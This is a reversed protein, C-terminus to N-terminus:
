PRELRKKMAAEIEAAVGPFSSQLHRFDDAFLVLVRAASTTTVTATRRGHGLLAIEGFFDGPGLSAVEEGGASVSARGQRLVFFSLGTAGEGVLRVGSGVEKVEFRTAVDALEAASLSAFLPLAALESPDASPV